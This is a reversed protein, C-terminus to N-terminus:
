QGMLIQLSKNGKIWMWTLFVGVGEYERDTSKIISETTHILAQKSQGMLNSIEVTLSSVPFAKFYLEETQGETVVLITKRKLIRDKYASAEKKKNWAKNKDTKKISRTRKPM